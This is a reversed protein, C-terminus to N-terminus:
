KSFPFPVVDALPLPNGTQCIKELGSLLMSEALEDIALGESDALCKLEAYEEDSLNIAFGHKRPKKTFDPRIVRM